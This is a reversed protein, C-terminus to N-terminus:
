ASKDELEWAHDLVHWAIRRAAYRPPWGKDIALKGDWARDLQEMIAERMDAIAQGDRFTPQKLRIGLKRAYAAEAALVHDIIQDRDRGGGRPGKPLLAPAGGAARDLTTWSAQVLAALRSGENAEMPQWDSTAKADPAGFDTTSTGPIREVVKLKVDPLELGAQSAVKAYRRGYDGLSALAAEENKGSRCWGPWDLACSFARRKGEELYVAVHDVM